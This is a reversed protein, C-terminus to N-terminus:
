VNCYIRQDVRFTRGKLRTLSVSGGIVRGCCDYDAACHSCSCESSRILGRELLEQCVLLRLNRGAAKIFDRSLKIHRVANGDLGDWQQRNVALPRIAERWERSSWHPQRVWQVSRQMYRGPYNTVKVRWPSQKSSNAM